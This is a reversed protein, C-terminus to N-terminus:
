ANILSPKATKTLEAIYKNVSSDYFYFKQVQEKAKDSLRRYEWMCRETTTKEDNHKCYFFLSVDLFSTADANGLIYAREDSPNNDNIHKILYCVEKIVADDAECRQMISKMLKASEVAVADRYASYGSYDKPQLRHQLACELDHGLAAIKMTDDIDKCFSETWQLTNRAHLFNEKLNESNSLNQIIARIVSDYLKADVM